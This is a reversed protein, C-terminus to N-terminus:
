SWCYVVSCTSLERVTHPVYNPTLGSGDYRNPQTVIVRREIVKPSTTVVYYNPQRWYWYGSSGFYTKFYPRHRFHRSHRNRNHGVQKFSRHHRSSKHQRRRHDRRSSSRSYQHGGGFSLSISTRASASVPLWILFCMIVIQFLRFREVKM